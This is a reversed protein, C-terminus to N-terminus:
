KYSCTVHSQSTKSTVCLFRVSHCSVTAGTTQWTQPNRRPWSTVHTTQNHTTVHDLSGLSVLSLGASHDDGVAVAYRSSIDLSRWPRRPTRSRLSELYTNIQKSSIHVMQFMRIHNENINQLPHASPKILDVSFTLRSSLTAALCTLNIAGM